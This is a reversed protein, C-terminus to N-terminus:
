FETMGGTAFQTKNQKFLMDVEKQSNEDVQSNFRLEMKFQSYQTLMEDQGGKNENFTLNAKSGNLDTNMYDSGAPTLTNMNPANNIHLYKYIDQGNPGLNLHLISGNSLDM